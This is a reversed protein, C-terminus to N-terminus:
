ERGSGTDDTFPAFCVCCRDADIEADTNNIGLQRSPKRQSIDRRHNDEARSHDSTDDNSTQEASDLTSNGTQMEQKMTLM